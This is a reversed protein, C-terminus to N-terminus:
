NAEALLQDFEIRTLMKSESWGQATVRCTIQPKVWHGPYRCDVFPTKRPITPLRQELEKRAEPSIGESVTGVFKLRGNVVTALLLDSFSAENPSQRYGIVVCDVEIRKPEEPKPKLDEVNAKGAFDEIAGDLSDAGEEEQNRAQETIAQVLNMKAQKKVGWDDFIASYRVGGVIALALVATAAGWSGLWVRQQTAPLQSCTESWIACPKLLFDLMGFKDSKTVLALYSWAHGAFFLLVGIACQGLAWYTRAWSGEPTSLRGLVSVGIILVVGAALIYGWLPVLEWLPKPEEVEEQALQEDSVIRTGLAPYYGCRPCWSALGWPEHSGCQPCAPGEDTESQPPAATPRPSAAADLSATELPTEGPSEDNEYQDVVSAASESM